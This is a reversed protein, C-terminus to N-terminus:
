LFLISVKLWYYSDKSSFLSSMLFKAQQHLSHPTPLSLFSTTLHILPKRLPMLLSPDTFVLFEDLLELSQTLLRDFPTQLLNSVQLSNASSDAAGSSSTASVPEKYLEDPWSFSAKSKYYVKVSDVMVVHGPDRSAGVQHTILSWIFSQQSQFIPFLALM